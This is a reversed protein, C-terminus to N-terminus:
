TSGCTLSDRPGLAARLGQAPAEGTRTEPDQDPLQPDTTAVARLLYRRPAPTILDGKGQSNRQGSPTETESTSSSYSSSSWHSSPASSMRSFPSPPGGGPPRRPHPRSPRSLGGVGRVTRGRVEEGQKKRDNGSLGARCGKGKLGMLQPTPPQPSLVRPDWPGLSDRRPTPPPRSYGLIGGVEQALAVGERNNETRHAEYM